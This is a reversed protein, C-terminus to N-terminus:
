SRGPSPHPNSRVWIRLSDVDAPPQDHARCYARFAQIEAPNDGVPDGKGYLLDTEGTMPGAEGDGERFDSGPGLPPTTEGSPQWTGASIRSSYTCVAWAQLHELLALGIRRADFTSLLVSLSVTAQGKAPSILGGPQRIGPGNRISIRIPNKTDTNEIRLVRSVVEGQVVGGGMEQHGDMEALKGAALETALLRATHLDLYADVNGKAGSGKSYDWLELRIRELELADEVHLIRKKTRHSIIGYNRPRYTRKESREIV